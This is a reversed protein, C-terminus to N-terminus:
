YDVPKAPKPRRNLYRIVRFSHVEREEVLPVGEDDDTDNPFAPDAIHLTYGYDNVYHEIRRLTRDTGNNNRVVLRKRMADLIANDDIIFVPAEDAYEVTMACCRFDFRARHEAASGFAFGILNWERGATDCFVATRGRLEVFSFAPCCRLSAVARLYDDESRFFLDFDKVATGDFQARLAGGGLIALQRFQAPLLAFVSAAYTAARSM